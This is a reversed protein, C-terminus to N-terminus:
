PKRTGTILEIKAEATALAIMGSLHNNSLKAALGLSPGGLAHISTGMYSFMEKLLPFYPNNPAASVMFTLIAESAGTTGGSVPADYFRPPTGTSPTTAAVAKGIALSTAPDITSSGLHCSLHTAYTQWM